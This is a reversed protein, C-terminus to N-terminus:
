LEGITKNWPKWAWNLVREEIGIAESIRQSNQMLFNFIGNRKNQQKCVFFELNYIEVVIALNHITELFLYTRPSLKKFIVNVIMISVSVSSPCIDDGGASIKDM